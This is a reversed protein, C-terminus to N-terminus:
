IVLLYTLLPITKGLRSKDKGIEIAKTLDIIFQKIRFWNIETVSDSSDLVVVIDM